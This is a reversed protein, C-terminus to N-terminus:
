VSPTAQSLRAPYVLSGYISGVGGLIPIPICGNEIVLEMGKITSAGVAIM